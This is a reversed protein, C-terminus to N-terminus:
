VSKSRQYSPQFDSGPMGKGKEGDGKVAAVAPAKLTAPVIDEPVGLYERLYQLGESTLYYYHWQWNFTEKVFGKSKFSKM